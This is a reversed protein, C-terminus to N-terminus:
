QKGQFTLSRRTDCWYVFRCLPNRVIRTGLTFASDAMAKQLGFCGGSLSFVSNVGVTDLFSLVKGLKKNFIVSVGLSIIKLYM